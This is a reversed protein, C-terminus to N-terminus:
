YKHFAQYHTAAALDFRALTTQATQAILMTTILGDKALTSLQSIVTATLGSADDLASPRHQLSKYLSILLRDRSFPSMAQKQSTVRWLATLDAIEHTTFIAQCGL